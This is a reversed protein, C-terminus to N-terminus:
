GDILYLVLEGTASNVSNGSIALTYTGALFHPTAASTAVPYVQETTSADRDALAGELVDLSADSPDGLTIDYAATPAPSGPNTVVKVLWGSLPISLSPISGDADDATWSVTMLQVRRSSPGKGYNINSETYSIASNAM